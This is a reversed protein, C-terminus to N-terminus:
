RRGGLEAVAGCNCHRFVLEVGSWENGPCAVSHHLGDRVQRKLMWNYIWGAGWRPFLRICFMQVDVRFLGVKLMWHFIPRDNKRIM